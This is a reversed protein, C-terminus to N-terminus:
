VAQRPFGVFANARVFCNAHIFGTTRDPTRVCSIERKVLFRCHSRRLFSSGNRMRAVYESSLVILHQFARSTIGTDSGAHHLDVFHEQAVNM